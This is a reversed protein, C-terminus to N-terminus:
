FLRNGVADFARAQAAIRAAQTTPWEPALITWLMEDRREGHELHRLTAEHTFGLKRVLAISRENHLDTTAQVRTIGLVEFAARAVAAVGETSYGRRARTRGVWTGTEVSAGDLLPNMVVGGVLQGDDAALIAWHWAQDVDFQARWQRVEALRAELPKPEDAVWPVWPRLHELNEAILAHLAHTDAPEWCRLVVRPTVIRYPPGPPVDTM